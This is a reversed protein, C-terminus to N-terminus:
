KTGIPSPPSIRISFSAVWPEREALYGPNKMHPDPSDGPSAILRHTQAHLVGDIWDVQLFAHPWFCLPPCGVITVNRRRYLDQVHTHGCFMVVPSPHRQLRFMVADTNLLGMMPHGPVAVTGEPPHHCFVILPKDPRQATARDLLSLGAEDVNGYWHWATKGEIASNLFVISGLRDDFRASSLTAGIASAQFDALNGKIVEHNGPIVTLKAKFEALLRDSIAYEEATGMNALDGIIIIEDANIQRLSVVARELLRTAFTYDQGPFQSDKTGLHVDAVLALRMFDKQFPEGNM